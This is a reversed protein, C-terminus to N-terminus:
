LQKSFMVSPMNDLVSSIKVSDCKGSQVDKENAQQEDIMNAKVKKSFFYFDTIEKQGSRKNVERYGKFKQEQHFRKWLSVATRSKGLAEFPEPALLLSFLEEIPNHLQNEFYYLLDLDLCKERVYDPSEVKDRLLKHGTITYLFEIREGSKPCNNPDRQKLKAYLAVHPLTSSLADKAEAHKSSLTKSMVLLENPIRGEMLDKVRLQVHEYAKQIDREMFVHFMADEITKKTFSCFDRRVVSIGKYLIKSKSLDTADEYVLGCYRKKTLIIFPYIIKEMEMKIPEPLIENLRKEAEFGLEFARPLNNRVSDGFSVFLSDSDIYLVSDPGYWEDIRDKAYLITQRGLATISEAVYPCSLMAYDSTVGTLGFLSNMCLKIALQRADLLIYQQKDCSKMQKKINQRRTWLGQLINSLVGVRVDKKVFCHHREESIDVVTLQSSQISKDLYVTSYCLNHAIILSPYLSMVDLVSIPDDMFVAKKPSMVFGGQFETLKDTTIKGPVSYKLHSAHYSILSFCRIQQGRLLVYEFPIRSINSMEMISTFVKLLVMLDAVLVCDQICYEAVEICSERSEKLAQFLRSPPMPHKQQNMFHKAVNDLKYSDLKFEKKIHLYLDINLRGTPNYFTMTNDGYATSSLQRSQFMRDFKDTRSLNRCFEDEIRHLLCRQHIYNWDFGFINYGIFIDPDQDHIFRSWEILLDKESTFSYLVFSSGDKELEERRKFFMTGSDLVFIFRHMVDSNTMMICTGIQSICDKEKKFDPFICNKTQYSEFSLCEIDFSAIRFPAIRDDNIHVVSKYPVHWIGNMDIYVNDMRIGIHGTPLIHMEHQFALLSPLCDDYLHMYPLIVSFDKENIWTRIKEVAKKRSFEGNFSLKIFREYYECFPYLPFRSEFSKSELGRTTRQFKEFFCDIETRSCTKSISLRFFPKFGEFQVQVATGTNNMLRGFAQIIFGRNDQWSDLTNWSLVHIQEM